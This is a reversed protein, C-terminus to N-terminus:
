AVGVVATLTLSSGTTTGTGKAMVRFRLCKVPVPLEVDCSADLQHVWVRLKALFENGSTTGGATDSITYDLWNTDDRTYQCKIEATTLSGKTFNIGVVVQNANGVAVDTSAVYSTTLIAASRITSNSLIQMKM